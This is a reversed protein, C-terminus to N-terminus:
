RAAPGPQIARVTVAVLTRADAGYRREQEGGGHGQDHDADHEERRTM